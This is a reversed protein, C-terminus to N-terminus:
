GKSEMMERFRQADEWMQANNFMCYARQAGACRGSLERLDSETYKYRYGTRGHLRFYKWRGFVSDSLFPDVCHIIDLESCLERILAEPWKGRPEWAIVRGGRDISDFFRRMNEVNSGTPKFSAPCQFVIARADLAEAMALTKEWAGLCVDAPRFCGCNAKQEATLKTRLRRYTPSTAEHTILQWAKITFEFGRPAEERWRRVTAVQPPEYFTQQIEIARLKQYYEKRALPFGCCGVTTKMCAM